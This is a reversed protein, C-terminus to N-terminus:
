YETTPEIKKFLQWEKWRKFDEAENTALGPNSEQWKKFALYQEFDRQAQRPQIQKPQRM